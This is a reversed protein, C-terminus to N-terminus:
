SSLPAWSCFVFWHMNSTKYFWMFSCTELKLFNMELEGALCLVSKYLKMICTCHYKMIRLMYNVVSRVPQSSDYEAFLLCCFGHGDQRRYFVGFCRSLLSSLLVLLFPSFLLHPSSSSSPFPLPLPPPSSSILLFPFHSSLSSLFSVGLTTYDTRWYSCYNKVSTSIVKTPGESWDWRIAILRTYLM